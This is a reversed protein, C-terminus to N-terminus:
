VHARGIGSEKQSPGVLRHLYHLLAAIVESEAQATQIRASYDRWAALHETRTKEAEYLRANDIAIAAQNAFSILIRIDKEGFADAREHEIDLVGILNGKVKLPVVIRSRGWAPRFDGSRPEM